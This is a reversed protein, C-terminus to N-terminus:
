RDVLSRPSVFPFVKIASGPTANYIKAWPPLNTSLANFYVRQPDYTGSPTGDLKPAHDKSSFGCLNIRHFGMYVALEVAGAGVYPCNYLWKNQQFPWCSPKPHMMVVNPANPSEGKKRWIFFYDTKIVGREILDYWPERDMICYYPSRTVKFSKNMGITIMDLKEFDIMNVEESNGLIAVEREWHINKFDRIDIL